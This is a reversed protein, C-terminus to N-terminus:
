AAKLDDLFGEPGHDAQEPGKGGGEHSVDCLGVLKQAADSETTDQWRKPREQLQNEINGHNGRSIGEKCRGGKTRSPSLIGQSGASSGAHSGVFM